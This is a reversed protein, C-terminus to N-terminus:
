NGRPSLSKLQQLCTIVKINHISDEHTALRHRRNSAAVKEYFPVYENSIISCM